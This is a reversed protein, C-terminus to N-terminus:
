ELPAKKIKTFFIWPITLVLGLPILLHISFLIREKPALSTIVEIEWEFQVLNLSLNAVVATFNSITTPFFEKSLKNSIDSEWLVIDSHSELFANLVTINRSAVFVEPEELNPFQERVWSTTWNQFDDLFIDLFYVHLSNNSEISIYLGTQPTLTSTTHLFVYKEPPMPSSGSTTFGTTAPPILSIIGLALGTMLLVTGLRGILIIWRM